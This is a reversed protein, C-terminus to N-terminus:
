SGPMNVLMVLQDAPSDRGPGPDDSGPPGASTWSVSAFGWSLKTAIRM